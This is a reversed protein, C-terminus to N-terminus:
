NETRHPIGHWCVIAFLSVLVIGLAWVSLQDGFLFFYKGEKCMYTLHTHQWILKKQLKGEECSDKSTWWLFKLLTWRFSWFYRVGCLASSLPIIQIINTSKDFNLQFVRWFALGFQCGPQEFCIAFGECHPLVERMWIASWQICVYEAPVEEWWVSFLLDRTSRFCSLSWLSRWAGVFLISGVLWNSKSCYHSDTYVLQSLAIFMLRLLFVIQDHNLGRKKASNVTQCIELAKKPSVMTQKERKRQREECVVNHTKLLLSSTHFNSLGAKKLFFSVSQWKLVLGGVWLVVAINTWVEWSLSFCLADLICFNVVLNQKSISSFCINKM